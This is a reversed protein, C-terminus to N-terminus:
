SPTSPVTEARATDLNRNIDEIRHAVDTPILSLQITAYDYQYNIEVLQMPLSLSYIINFDWFDIDWEAVDWLTLKDEIHPHKIQVIQGPHFSEINYGKTEDVNNDLVKATLLSRPHDHEDLFKTVKKDSTASDTVREDQMKYARTGYETKSSTREDFTYLAPDGGGKFYVENYLEEISKSAKINNVQKGIFLQHDITDFDAAKLYFINDADVYWYWFAPCLDLVTDVVERYTMFNFTYSVTTGTLAISAGTYHVVGAYKDLVNKMINSPDLSNYAKTTAAGDHFLKDTLTKVTSTVRVVVQQAGNDNINPEYATIYGDYIKIGQGDVDNIITKVENGLKIISNEYSSSFERFSLALIIKMEGMGGNITWNFAPVNTVLDAPLTDIFVGDNTYIKHGFRKARRSM